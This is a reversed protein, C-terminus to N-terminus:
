AAGDSLDANAGAVCAALHTVALARACQPTPLHSYAAQVAPSTIGAQWSGRGPGSRVSAGAQLWPLVESQFHGQSGGM